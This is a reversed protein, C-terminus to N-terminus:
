VGVRAEPVHVLRHEQHPLARSHRVLHGLCCVVTRVGRGGVSVRLDVISIDITIQNNTPHISPNTM